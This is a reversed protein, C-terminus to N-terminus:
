ALSCDPALVLPLLLEAYWAPDQYYQLVQFGPFCKSLLHFLLNSRIFYLAVSHLIVPLKAKAIHISLVTYEVKLIILLTFVDPQDSCLNIKSYFGVSVSFCKIRHVDILIVYFAISTSYMTLFYYPMLPFM